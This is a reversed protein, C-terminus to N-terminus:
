SQLTSNERIEQLFNDTELGVEAAANEADLPGDFQKVLQQIPEIGGFVGGADEIAQRYRVIDERVLSDM